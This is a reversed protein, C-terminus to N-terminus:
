LFMRVSGLVMWSMTSVKNRHQGFTSDCELGFQPTFAQDVPYLSDAFQISWDFVFGNDKRGYIVFRWKGFGM